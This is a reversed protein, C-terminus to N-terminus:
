LVIHSYHWLEQFSYVESGVTSWAGTSSFNVRVGDVYLTQEGATINWSFVVHHWNTDVTGGSIMTFDTSNFKSAWFEGNHTWINQDRNETTSFISLNSSVDNVKVWLAQTGAYQCTNMEDGTTSIYDDIGDFQYAGWGDYGITSNWTIGGAETANDSYSSYDKTGSNSGINEFPLNLAMITTSDKYWNIINKVRDNDVLEATSQNHVTLNDWTRNYITTTNLLPTTHTPPANLVTINTTNAISYYAGDYFRATFTLNDHKTWNNPDVIWSVSSANSVSSATYSAAFNDNVSLNFYVTSTNAQPDTYILSANIWTLNYAQTINLALAPVYIVHVVTLNNSCKTEGDEVGDNPTM